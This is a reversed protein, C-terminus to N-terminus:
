RRVLRRMRNVFETTSVVEVDPGFADQLQKFIMTNSVSESANSFVLDGNDDIGSWAHVIIFTYADECTKDTSAHNIEEAVYAIENRPSYYPSGDDYWISYKASVIPKDNSWCVAGRYGAYMATYDIFLCGDIEDHCTYTDFYRRMSDFRSPIDLGMMFASDDMIEVVSTKSMDMYKCLTAVVQAWAEKDTWRTPYTYGISSLQYAFDDAATMKDYYELLCVPAIDVM